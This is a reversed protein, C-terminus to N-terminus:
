VKEKCTNAFRRITGILVVDSNRRDSARRMARAARWNRRFTIRRPASGGAVDTDKLM